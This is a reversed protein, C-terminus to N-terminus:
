RAFRPTGREYVLRGDKVVARVPDPGLQYGLFLHDPV